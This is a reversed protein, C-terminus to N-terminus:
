FGLWYMLLIHILLMPIAFFSQFKIVDNKDKINLLAIPLINFNAAMPTLLTGCYGATLALTSCIVPDGGQAFVFPVGIGVTIVSFAAFGNGMIMTFLAMGICYAICGVIPTSVPIFKAINDSLVVGVGAETFLTGLTALLQPLVVASGMLQILRNSDNIVTKKEPKTIILTIILVLFATIGISVTSSIGNIKSIILILIAISVSPIFIKNKLISAKESAFKQDLEEVNGRQVKNLISLIGVIVLLIGVLINPLVKGFVFITGIILWFLTTGIREQNKDNKFISYASLYMMLGIVIYFFELLSDNLIAM